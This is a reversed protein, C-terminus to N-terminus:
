SKLEPFDEERWEDPMSPQGEERQRLEVRRIKGSITKPLAAFELRRIRKFPALHQRSHRFIALATERTPGFGPVLVVYAKPVSLRLADPAPVVAAEAVAEHEILVSEVEFPSVRYDSAKFVDDTRGVFTVIGHEDITAVDGSHYFGGAMSPDTDTGADPDTDPREEDGIDPRYGTMLNVPARSLDFCLEGEGPGTLPQGTAVDVLVVPVGPLPRGMSGPVVTAGPPNAVSATTETQGYGDRITRGWQRQVQVIVEPNLPEGAAVVERLTWPGGSLDTTILMRWVTPPACLTTARERALTELLGDPDFRTANHVLVTAEAAWPAFFCSWAHKAWGPSSVNCHVDGPQLGIWFMTTLHGVPYSVHNHEVLKPRNTTGSTFYYLLPDSPATGPHELVVPGAETAEELNSWGPAAGVCIRVVQSGCGEFKGTDQPGCVVARAGSRRIRDALDEPGLAPTAPVIVAEAKMAALMVEWLPVENGLMVIVADGKGLGRARLWGAIRASHDSLQAFTRVARTGDEDVVVLAPRDNDAAIVDFWDFAWNFVPGVQPFAFTARAREPDTRMALLQDRAARYALTAPRPSHDAM